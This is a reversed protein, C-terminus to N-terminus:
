AARLARLEAIISDILQAFEPRTSRWEGIKKHSYFVTSHDRNLLIGIRDFSANTLERCLYIAVQRPEAIERTSRRQKLEHPQMGYRRAVVQLIEALYIRTPM